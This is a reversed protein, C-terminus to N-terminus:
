RHDRSKKHDREHLATLRTRQDPTLIRRMRVLMLTRAKALSARVAEVRDLQQIVTPEDASRDILRSLEAELRDLEKKHSRFEPLANQFVEELRTVQETSLGLERQFKESQWWKSGQASVAASLLCLLVTLLAAPRRPSFPIVKM